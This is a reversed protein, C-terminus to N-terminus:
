LQYRWPGFHLVRENWGRETLWSCYFVPLRWRGGGSVIRLCRRRQSLRIELRVLEIPAHPLGRAALFRLFALADEPHRRHGTPWHHSAYEEFIGAAAPALMKWTRPVIRAVESRRKALLTAAQAEVGAPNLSCLIAADPPPLELDRALQAANAKLRLRLARDSLLLALASTLERGAL